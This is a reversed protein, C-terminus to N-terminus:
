STRPPSPTITVASASPWFLAEELASAMKIMCCNAMQGVRANALLQSTEGGAASTAGTYQIFQRAMEDQKDKLLKHGPCRDEVVKQDQVAGNQYSQSERWCGHRM